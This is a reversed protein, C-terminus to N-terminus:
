FEKVFNKYVSLQMERYASTKDEPTMVVEAPQTPPVNPPQDPQKATDSQNPQQQEKKNAGKKGM